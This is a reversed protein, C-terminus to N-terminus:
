LFDHRNGCYVGIDNLTNIIGEIKMFCDADDINEDNMIEKIKLIAQYCADTVIKETNIKLNPFCINIEENELMKALIDKYLNM